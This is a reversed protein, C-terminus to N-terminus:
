GFLFAALLVAAALGAWAVHRESRRKDYAGAARRERILEAEFEASSSFTCGLALGARKANAELLGLDSPPRTASFIM